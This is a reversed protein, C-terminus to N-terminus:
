KQPAGPFVNLYKVYLHFLAHDNCRCGIGPYLGPAGEKGFPPPVLLSRKKQLSNMQDLLSEAGLRLHLANQVIHVPLQRNLQLRVVRGAGQCLLAPANFPYSYALRNQGFARFGFGRLPNNSDTGFRVIIGRSKQFWLKGKHHRHVTHLIRPIEAGNDAGGIGSSSGAHQQSPSRYIQVVGLGNAGGHAGQEMQGDRFAIELLEQRGCAALSDPQYAGPQIRPLM